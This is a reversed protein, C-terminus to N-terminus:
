GYVESIIREEKVSLLPQRNRVMWRNVYEIMSAPNNAFEKVEFTGCDISVGVYGKPSLASFSMPRKM